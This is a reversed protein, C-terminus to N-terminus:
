SAESTKSAGDDAAADAVVGATTAALTSSSSSSTSTATTSSTAAEELSHRMAQMYDISALTLYSIWNGLAAFDPAALQFM